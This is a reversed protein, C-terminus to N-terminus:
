EIRNVSTFNRRITKRFPANPHGVILAIAAKNAEPIGLSKSLAKNRQIIPPAGGIMTNGLDLSEAALMAYTCAIAADVADAYPSHHFLILAPADYFLVDRGKRWNDVYCKALPTVFSSFMDYSQKGTFPRMLKLVWPRFLKLFGEYGKIIEGALERVNERGRITVVGVDWPPIGMPATSAIAVIRDLDEQSVEQAAFRRVSRRSQLLAEFAAASAREGSPPLPQIDSPDIGRGTVTISDAPCVMMCHGCAMCGFPSDEAVELRGNAMRLVDGACISACEGCRVCTADDIHVTGAERYLSHIIPM